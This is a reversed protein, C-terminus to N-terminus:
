GSGGRGAAATAAATGKTGKTGLHEARMALLRLLLRVYITSGGLLSNILDPQSKQLVSLRSLTECELSDHFVDSADAGGGGGCGGSGNSGGSDGGGGDSSGGDGRGGCIAAGPAPVSSGGGSHTTRSAM